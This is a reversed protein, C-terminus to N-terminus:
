KMREPLRALISFLKSYWGVWFERDKMNDTMQLPKRDIRDYHGVLEKVVPDDTRTNWADSQDAFVLLGTLLCDTRPHVLCDVQCSDKTKVMDKGCFPCSKLKNDNSTM